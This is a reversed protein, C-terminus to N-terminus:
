SSKTNDCVSASKGREYEAVELLTSLLQFFGKYIDLERKVANYGEEIEEIVRESRSM